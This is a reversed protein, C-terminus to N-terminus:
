PEVQVTFSVSNFKRVKLQSNKPILRLYYLGLFGYRKLELRFVEGGQEIEISRIGDTLKIGRCLGLPVTTTSDGFRVTLSDAKDMCSPEGYTVFVFAQM